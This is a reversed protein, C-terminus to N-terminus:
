FVTQCETKLSGQQLEERGKIIVLFWCPLQLRM